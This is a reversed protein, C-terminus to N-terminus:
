KAAFCHTRCSYLYKSNKLVWLGEERRGGAENRSGEEKMRGGEKKAKRWREKRRRRRAEIGIIFDNKIFMLQQQLNNFFIGVTDGTM